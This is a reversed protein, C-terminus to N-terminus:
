EYIRVHTWYAYMELNTHGSKFIVNKKLTRQKYDKLRANLYFVQLEERLVKNKVRDLKSCRKVRRLFTM